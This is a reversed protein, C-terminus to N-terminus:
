VRLCFVFFSASTYRRILRYARRGRHPSCCLLCAGRKEGTQSATATTDKMTKWESQSRTGQRSHPPTSAAKREDVKKESDSKVTGIKGEKYKQWVADSFFFFRM